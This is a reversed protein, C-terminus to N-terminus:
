YYIKKVLMHMDMIFVCRCNLLGTCFDDMLLLQLTKDNQRLAIRHRPCLKGHIILSSIMYDLEDQCTSLFCESENVRCECNIECTSIYQVSIYLLFFACFMSPLKM